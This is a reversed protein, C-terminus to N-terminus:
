KTLGKENEEERERLEIREGFLDDLHKEGSRWTQGGSIIRLLMKTKM